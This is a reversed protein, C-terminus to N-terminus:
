PKQLKKGKIWRLTHARDTTISGLTQTYHRFLFKVMLPNEELDLFWREGDRSDRVKIVPIEAESRNIEVPLTGSGTLQLTSSISDLKVKIKKQSKLERYMKRSLWLTTADKSRVDVGGEFIRDGAFSDAELLTRNPLLVTGQTVTNEWEFFRDPLFWAIRVVFRSSNGQNEIRYVLVTDQGFAPITGGPLADQARGAACAFALVAIMSLFRNM